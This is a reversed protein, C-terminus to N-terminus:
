GRELNNPNMEDILKEFVRITEEDMVELLEKGFLSEPLDWVDLDMSFDIEEDYSRDIFAVESGSISWLEEELGLSVFASREYPEYPESAGNVHVEPLPKLVAFLAIIVVAVAAGGAWAPVLTWRRRSRAEETVKGPLSSWFAAPPEPVPTEIAALIELTAQCESCGVAHRRVTEMEELSLTKGYYDPLLDRPCNNV